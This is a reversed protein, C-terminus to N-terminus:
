YENKITNTLNQITKLPNERNMIGSVMAIGDYPLTQLLEINEENIGGALFIKGKFTQKAKLVSEFQILECSQATSSPFMSCFSIYDVKNKEAWEIENSINSCTIGTVFPRNIQKKIENFNQPIEDFHVGNLPLTNLLKWQNNIIVPIETKSTKELIKKVIQERNDIEPFHDWIQIASIKATAIIELKSLLAKEELSPDIILYIGSSIQKKKIEM